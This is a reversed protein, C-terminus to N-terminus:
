GDSDSNTLKINSFEKATQEHQLCCHVYKMSKDDPNHKPAPDSFTQDTERLVARMM